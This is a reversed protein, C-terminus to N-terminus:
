SNKAAKKAARWIRKKVDPRDRWSIYNKGRLWDQFSIEGHEKKIRRIQDNFAKRQDKLAAQCEVLYGEIFKMDHDAMTALLTREFEEQRDMKRFYVEHSEAANM